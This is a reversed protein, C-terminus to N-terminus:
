RILTGADPGAFRPTQIEEKVFSGAASSGVPDAAEPASGAAPAQEAAPAAPVDSRIVVPLYHLVLGELLAPYTEGAGLNGAVDYAEATFLYSGPGVFSRVFTWSDGSVVANYWSVQGNYSVRVRVEDVEGGDTVTGSMEVNLVSPTSEEGGDAAQITFTEVEIVPAVVDVKYTRSIPESTNGAKDEGVL